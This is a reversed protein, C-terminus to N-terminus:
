THVLYHLNMGKKLMVHYFASNNHVLLNDLLRLYPTHTSQICAQNIFGSDFHLDFM